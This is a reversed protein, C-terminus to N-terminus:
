RKPGIFRDLIAASAKSYVAIQTPSARTFHVDAAECAAGFLQLIDESRNKFAYRPARRLYTGKRETAIIRCGDSHIPGRLLPRPDPMVLSRQWETLVIRRLHKPGPGHQPILCPWHMWYASVEVSRQDRRRLTYARKGNAVAAIASACEQVIQPYAADLAIRIRWVRPSRSICGDGLYLGLLYGYSEPRLDTFDHGWGCPTRCDGRLTRLNRGASWDRVTSRPVGTVRAIRSATYGEDVLALVQAFDAASRM